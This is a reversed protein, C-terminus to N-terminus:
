AAWDVPPRLGTRSVHSVFRMADIDRLTGVVEGGAGVVTLERAHRASMSHFATRFSETEGIVCWAAVSHDAVCASPSQLLALAARARTLIGMLRNEHDVVPVGYAAAELALARSSELVSADLSM